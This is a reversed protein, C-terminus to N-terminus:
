NHGRREAIRAWIDSCTPLENGGHEDCLAVEPGESFGDRHISYRGQSREGCYACPKGVLEPDPAGDEVEEVEAASM